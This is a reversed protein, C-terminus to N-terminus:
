FRVWREKEKISGRKGKKTKIARLVYQNYSYGYSSRYHYTNVLYGLKELHKKRERFVQEDSQSYTEVKIDYTKFFKDWDTIM